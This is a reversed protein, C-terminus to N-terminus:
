QLAPCEDSLHSIGLALEISRAGARLRPVPTAPTNTTPVEEKKPVVPLLSWDLHTVSTMRVAGGLRVYSLGAGGERKKCPPDAPQCLALPLGLERV